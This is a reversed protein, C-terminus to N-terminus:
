DEVLVGARIAMAKLLERLERVEVLRHAALHAPTAFGRRPFNVRWPQGETRHSGVGICIVPVVDRPPHLAPRHRRKGIGRRILALTARTRPM